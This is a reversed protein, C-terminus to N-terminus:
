QAFPNTTTKGTTVPAAKYPAPSKGSAKNKRKKSDPWSYMSETSFVKDKFSMDKNFAGAKSPDVENAIGDHFFMMPACVAVFGGAVVVILLVVTKM